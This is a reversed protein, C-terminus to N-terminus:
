VHQQGRSAEFGDVAQGRVRRHAAARPAHEVRRLDREAVHEPQEARHPPRRPLTAATSGFVAMVAGTSSGLAAASGERRTVNTVSMTVGYMAAWNSASAPRVLSRTIKQASVLELACGHCSPALSDNGCSTIPPRESGLRM